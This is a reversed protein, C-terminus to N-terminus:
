AGGGGQNSTAGVPSRAPLPVDLGDELLARIYLERADRLNAIAEEPTDGQSLCGPLEPHRALFCPANGRTDPVLVTEYDLAVYERLRKALDDM